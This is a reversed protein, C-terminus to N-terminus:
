RTKGSIPTGTSRTLKRYDAILKRSLPGPTGAGITRGDVSIVPVAEAATGTLFCEDATYVEYLTFPEERVAVKRKRALEIVANRTVGELPGLWLPPTFLVNDRVIFFNDGTCEVVYGETSLMLTEVTGANIGDLKAMISALYNLSKVRPSFQDGRIHRTTGTVLALGERYFKEPYLQISAAICFVTPVPCKRPDLGLDGKGRTVVLRIYGDRLRNARLTALVVEAMAPPALPIALKIAKASDYLRRIHQDLRFVRGNYARIGEFVGDGYLVGHDFVSVVADREDVIKGNLYIKLGM